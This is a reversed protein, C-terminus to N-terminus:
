QGIIDYAIIHSKPTTTITKGEKQVVAAVLENKGDNDFDGLAYDRIFGSFPDTSWEPALGLGNWTLAVFNAKTYQRFQDLHGGAIEHNQAALVENKGDGDMDAVLIRMPLYQIEYNGGKEKSPRSMNLTSGGLASGDQWEIEGNPSVLSLKDHDNYAVVQFQPGEMLKGYTLGLLNFGNRSLMPNVTDYSEAVGHMTFVTGTFPKNARNKQGLLVPPTNTTKVIRYNWPSGKVIKRYEKGDYELVFSDVNSKQPNLATVFIEAFGNGNIDGVDVGVFYDNMRGKIEGVKFIRGKDNRYIIVTNATIVITEVKGDNDVDGLDLGHLNLKFTRSKWFDQSLVGIAAAPAASKGGNVGEALPTEEAMKEPHEHVDDTPAPTATGAGIAVMAAGGVLKGTIDTAFQNIKPVLDDISESQNFFAITEKEGASDVLRADLSTSSGFITLSGILVYNASLRRGVERAEDEDIPESIGELAKAVEDDSVVVIEENQSLRSELMDQLGSKLYQMDEPANLTFPTIAITVPEDQASAKQLVLVLLLTILVLIKIHFFNIKAKL